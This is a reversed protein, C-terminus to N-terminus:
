SPGERRLDTGAPIRTGAPVQVKVDLRVATGTRVGDGVVAFPSVRNDIGLMVGAGLTAGPALWTNAGVMAGRGVHIRAIVLELDGDRSAVLHASLGVHHGFVAHDGIVLLNRDMLSLQPTWIVGRGVQSGWARLWVSFLGPVMRLAAELAPFTVFTWQLQSSGWWPNYGEGLLSSRGELLPWRLDHLRFLVLPLLYITALLGMLSLLGPSAAVGLAATLMCALHAPPLLYMLRATLTM